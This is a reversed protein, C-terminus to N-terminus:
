HSLLYIVDADAAENEVMFVTGQLLVFPRVKGRLPMELVRSLDLILLQSKGLNIPRTFLHQVWDHADGQM